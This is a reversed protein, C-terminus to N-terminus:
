LRWERALDDAFKLAIAGITSAPNVAGVTPMVSGDAIIINPARHMRGAADVVSNAPDTGMRATGLLHWGTYPPFPADVTRTARTAKFFERARDYGFAVMKRTNESITYDIRPVPLGDADIEATISVRNSPEPLDEPMIMFTITHRFEEAVARQAAKGWAPTQRQAQALLPNERTIQLHVGRLFGRARDTEYFEHSYLSNGIPGAPGDLDHPIIGRAYAVPHFMLYRGLPDAEGQGFGSALLLRVTGIGNGAVVVLSAPQECDAGNEDRFVVSRAQGKEVRVGTVTSFCRLEVGMAMAAPWYTVDTSAKARTVCGQQCPGCHNCASRGGRPMTLIAADAPWWHWGLRNFALAAHRGMHGLPLPAMDRRPKRPYSPDGALGSVGMIEDNIDYYPELASYDFPWDDGVGDDSRTRFDSPKLRPFHAAWNVTSGGAGNWMLPKVPSGSDDIRYDRSWKNGGYALRLNPSPSWLGAALSQWDPRLSPMDKADLFGGRELCVVRLGPMQQKIRWAFASGGMGSGVIVIDVPDLKRM